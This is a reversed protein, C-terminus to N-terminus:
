RTGGSLALAAFRSVRTQAHQDGKLWAVVRVVNMAVATLLHQLHTKALGRYRAQRLEFARIGQSLTGEIGARKAYQEGFEETTQRERAAQLALHQEQRRLTVTRAQARTCQERQTCPQCDARAFQVSIVDNGNRDQATNWYKSTCGQPCTVTQAAWDITFCSVDFGAAAQAQWTTDAPVPGILEVGYEKQSTVLQTSDIYGMDLLHKAPLLDKAALAQHIPTTMVVDNTTAPTTEVHTIL